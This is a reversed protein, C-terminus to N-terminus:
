FFTFPIPKGSFALGVVIRNDSAARSSALSGYRNYSYSIYGSLRRALVRSYSVTIFFQNYNQNLYTNALNQGAISKLSSYSGNLTILAQRGFPHSVSGGAFTHSSTLFAGNGPNVGHGVNFSVGYKGFSRRVAGQVTPVTSTNNYPLLYVLELQGDPTVVLIGQPIRLIGNTRVYTAGGSAVLEWHGLTHTLNLYGGDITSQGFGGQYHYYSHSYTGGVSSRRSLAYIVSATGTVGTSGPAGEFSFRNLFFSGGVVYSLRATQQYSLYVSSQLFRSTPSYPNTLPGGGPQASTGFYPTSYFLIGASEAFSIAWHHGLRRAYTLGLYQDTGIGQYSGPYDRFDGHYSLGLSGGDSFSKGLSVAGGVAFGGASGGGGFTQNGSDWIGNFFLSYNFFDGRFFEGSLGAGPNPAAMGGAVGGIGQALALCPALVFLAAFKKL